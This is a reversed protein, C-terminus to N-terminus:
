LAPQPFECTLKVHRPGQDTKPNTSKQRNTKAKVEHRQDPRRRASNPSVPLGGVEFNAMLRQQMLQMQQNNQERKQGIQNNGVIDHV